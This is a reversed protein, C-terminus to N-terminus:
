IRVKVQHRQGQYNTYITVDIFMYLAVFNTFQLVNYM